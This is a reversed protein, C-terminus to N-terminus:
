IKVPPPKLPPAKFVVDGDHAWIPLKGIVISNLQPDFQESPQMIVMACGLVGGTDIQLEDTSPAAKM